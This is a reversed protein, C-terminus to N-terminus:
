SNVVKASAQWFGAGAAMRSRCGFYYQDKLFAADSGGELASFEVAEREQLILARASDTRLMYWDNADTLRQSVILSAAGVQVNSTNSIITANLVERFM